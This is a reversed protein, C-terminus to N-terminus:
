KSVIEDTNSMKLVFIYRILACFLTSLTEGIIHDNQWGELTIVPM